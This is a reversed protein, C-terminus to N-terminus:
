EASINKILKNVCVGFMQNDKKILLDVYKNM